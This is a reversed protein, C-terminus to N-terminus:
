FGSCILESSLKWDLIDICMFWTISMIWSPLIYLIGRDDKGFDVFLLPYLAPKPEARHQRPTALCPPPEGVESRGGGTTPAPSVHLKEIPAESQKPFTQVNFVVIFNRLASLEPSTGTVPADTSLECCVHASM